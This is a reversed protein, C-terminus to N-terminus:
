EDGSSVGGSVSECTLSVWQQESYDVGASVEGVFVDVKMACGLTFSGLSVIFFNLPSRVLHTVNQFENSDAICELGVRDFM